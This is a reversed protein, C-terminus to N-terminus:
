IPRPSLFEDCYAKFQNEAEDESAYPGCESEDETRFYWGGPKSYVYPTEDAPMASATMDDTPKV